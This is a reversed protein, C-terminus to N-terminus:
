RENAAEIAAARQNEQRERERALLGRLLSRLVIDRGATRLLEARVDEITLNDIVDTVPTTAM